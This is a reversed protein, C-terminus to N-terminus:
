LRITLVAFRVKLTWVGTNFSLAENQVAFGESHISPHAAEVM